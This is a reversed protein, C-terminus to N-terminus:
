KRAPSCSAKLRNDTVGIVCQTGIAWSEKECAARRCAVGPVAGPLTSPRSDAPGPLACRM